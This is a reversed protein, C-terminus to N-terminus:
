TPFESPDSTQIRSLADAAKNEKGQKYEVEFDFGLLKSVWRQQTPTGIRQQLLHKLAQQDTKVKFKYGLLYHRWKQVASVLALMEKEYTSLLLNRGKLKHSYYAIPKGEQMLVAWLGEGSADCEILFPKSFDPLGLIPPTTMVEKLRNFAINAGENWQFSEKKLLSTLPAAIGGYGQVFKRYYGTLGLFGRLAKPTKPIPWNTMATIKEPDAKVGEESILHGLYEVEQKGFACKSLKVYLQHTKLIEM